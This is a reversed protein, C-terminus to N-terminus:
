RNLSILSNKKKKQMQEIILAEKENTIKTKLIEAYETLVMILQFDVFNYIKAHNSCFSNSVKSCVRKCSNTSANFQTWISLFFM